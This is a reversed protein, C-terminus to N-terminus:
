LRVFPQLARAMWGSFRLPADTAAVCICPVGPATVPQHETDEDLDAVDGPAFHGLTDDYAGRLIMTLESGGHTHMPLSRGPKVRLLMLHGDDAGHSRIHHIGPGIWKWRLAKYSSGFYPWLPEPLEDPDHRWLEPPPTPTDPETHELKALLREAAGESLALGEQQGLLGGGITDTARLRDRCLHCVSLHASVVAAFAVSLGGSSYGMLTVIDPHHHPNM